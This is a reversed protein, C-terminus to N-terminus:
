NTTNSTIVKIATNATNATNATMSTRTEENLNSDILRSPLALVMAKGSLGAGISLRVKM